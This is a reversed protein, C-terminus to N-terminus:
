VKVDWGPRYAPRRWLQEAAPNDLLAGTQPDCRVVTGTRYAINGLHCLMTSKQGEVIPSALEAEGRLAAIFNGIHALDGAGAVSSTGRGTEQGKLDYITWSDRNVAMTGEDGTFVVEGLPKEARRPQCSSQVWECGAHGFDYAAVGTDPTEIPDTWWYRSGTYTVTRPHEAKLGWRMVDLAHIGNNGLEGNGWHWFWHWAYHVISALDHRPDDPVPGQWLDLDIGPSAPQPRPHGAPRFQNYDARAYKVTGIAGGHLAAIADKMWTRRQNGMQVLRGYRAAAAVIMEAERPNQSGPKEVYVHKGAQMALLSAPTHWFNPTAVFVADLTDDDLAQRFDKVGRPTTSTGDLALKMGMALRRPDVDALWTVEVSPFQVLARLIELGRGLGVVAVRVRRGEVAARVAAPVLGGILSAGGAAAARRLFERRDTAPM